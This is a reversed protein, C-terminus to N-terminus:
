RLPERRAAVEQEAVEALPVGEVPTGDARPAAGLRRDLARERGLQREDALLGGLHAYRKRDARDHAARRVPEAAAASPARSRAVVRVGGRRVVQRVRRAIRWTMVASTRPM